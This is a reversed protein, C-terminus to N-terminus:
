KVWTKNIEMSSGMSFHRLYRKTVTKLTLVIFLSFSVEAYDLDGDKMVIKKVHDKYIPDNLKLLEAANYLRKKDASYIVTKPNKFWADSKGDMNEPVKYVVEDHITSLLRIDNLNNERCYNFIEVISEKVMDAQTGQICANRASNRANSLSKRDPKVKNKIAERVYPYNIRSYTRNNLVVFGQKAALDANSLVFKFTDPITTQIVQIVIDAEDLPINLSSACKSPFMGYVSGFTIPKFANRMPKNVQKNIIFTTAAEIEKRIENKYDENTLHILVKECWDIFKEDEKFDERYSIMFDDKLTSDSTEEDLRLKILKKFIRYKFVAKWCATAIPSHADDKVVALDYLHSDNAFDCMIVVEAGSLDCTVVSYGEDTGFCTRIENKAPINQSNIRVSGGKSEKGGGSQFRGTSAEETRFVTHVKNTSEMIKALYNFGFATLTHAVEKYKILTEILEKHKVKPNEKVMTRLADAGVTFKIASHINNTLRKTKIKANIFITPVIPQGKVYLEKSLKVDKGAKIDLETPLELGLKAILEKVDDDNSWNFFQKNRAKIYEEDIFSNGLLDIRIPFEPKTRKRTLSMGQFYKKNEEKVDNILKLALEDLQLELEYKKNWDNTVNDVWQSTNLKFGELESQTIPLLLPNGIKTLYFTLNLSDAVEYQRKALPILYAVDNAAYMIQKETPNFSKPNEGVFTKQSSKDLKVGLRNYILSDLKAVIKIGQNIKKETIYTCWIDYLELKYKFYIFSYDFKLNHAVVKLDKFYDKPILNLLNVTTVDIVLQHEENGLIFLLISHKLPELGNTELDLGISRRTKFLNLLELTKSKNIEQYGLKSSTPTSATTTSKKRESYYFIM